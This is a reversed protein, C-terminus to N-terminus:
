LNEIIKKTKLDIFGEKYLEKASDKYSYFELFNEVLYNKEDKKISAIEVAPISGLFGKKYNTHCKDCGKENAAYGAGKKVKCSCLKDVLRQSMIGSISDEIRDTSVGLIRLRSFTSIVNNTHLTSVVLHGTLSAEITSLAVEEDRIEGIVILDPLQRMFSKLLKPYTVQHEKEGNKNIQCQDIGDVEVEVPDEATKINLSREKFLNNILTYITTTKGSGTPGTILFLGYSNNNIIDELISLPKPLYGLDTLKTNKNFKQYSRIVMSFGAITTMVSLRYEKLEGTTNLSFKGDILKDSQNEYSMNILAVRVKEALKFDLIDEYKVVNDGTINYNLKVNNKRWSFTIDSAQLSEMKRLILKIADISKINETFIINKKNSEETDNLLVKLNVLITENDIIFIENSYNDVIDEPIKKFVNSVVLCKKDKNNLIPLVAYKIFNDIQKDTLEKFNQLKYGKELLEDLNSIVKSQEVKVLQKKNIKRM